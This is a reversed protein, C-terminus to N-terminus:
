PDNLYAMILLNGNKLKGERRSLYTIILEGGGGWEWGVNRM